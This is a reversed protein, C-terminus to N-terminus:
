LDPSVIWFQTEDFAFVSTYFLHLEKILAEWQVMETKISNMKSRCDVCCNKCSSKRIFLLNYLLDICLIMCIIYSITMTASSWLRLRNWVSNKNKDYRLCVWKTFFLHVYFCKKSKFFIWRKNILTLIDKQAKNTWWSTVSIDGVPRLVSILWDILWGIM